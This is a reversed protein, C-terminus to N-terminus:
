AGGSLGELYRRRALLDEVRALTGEGAEWATFIQELEADLAGVRAAAHARLAGPHEEEAERWEFIQELFAPDLQRGVADRLEPAGTALYLARRQPDRLVRRAENLTATWQLAMRREVAPRNVFKDPHVKRNAERWAADLAASDLHYRRALGLVGFLDPSPPPPQIVGCSACVAGQLSEHCQWCIM